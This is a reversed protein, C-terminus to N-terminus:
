DRMTWYLLFALAFLSQGTAAIAAITAALVIALDLNKM